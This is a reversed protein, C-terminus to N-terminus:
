EDYDDEDPDSDEDDGEPGIEDPDIDAPLPELASSTSVLM